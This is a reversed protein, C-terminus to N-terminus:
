GRPTPDGRTSFLPSPTERAREKEWERELIRPKRSKSSCGKEVQFRRPSKERYYRDNLSQREQDARGNKEGGANRHSEGKKLHRKGKERGKKKKGLTPNSRASWMM